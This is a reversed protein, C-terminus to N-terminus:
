LKEINPRKTFVFNRTDLLRGTKGTTLNQVDIQCFSSGNTSISVNGQKIDRRDTVNGDGGGESRTIRCTVNANGDVPRRPFTQFM